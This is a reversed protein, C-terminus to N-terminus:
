LCQFPLAAEYAADNILLPVSGYRVADYLKSTPPTDGRVILALQARKLVSPKYSGLCCGNTANSTEDFM